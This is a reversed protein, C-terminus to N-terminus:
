KRDEALLLELLADVLEPDAKVALLRSIIVHRPLDQPDGDLWFMISNFVSQVAKWTVAKKDMSTHALDIRQRCIAKWDNPRLTPSGLDVTIISKTKFEGITIQSGEASATASAAKGEIKVHNLNCAPLWLSWHRSELFSDYAPGITLKGGKYTILTESYAVKTMDNGTGDDEILTFEGDAGVILTIEIAKPLEVGHKAKDFADMPIISGQTAFIPIEQISRHFDVIRDGDYVLGAFIDVWTGPPLWATSKGLQTVQSKPQTIPAALLQKGFMYANKHDYANAYMPWEYYMPEILTRYELSANM